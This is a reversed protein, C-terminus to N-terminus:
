FWLFFAVPLLFSTFPSPFGFVNLFSSLSKSSFSSSSSSSISVVSSSISVVSSSISAFSSSTSCTSWGTSITWSSCSFYHQRSLQDSSWLFENWLFPREFLSSIYECCGCSIHFNVGLFTGNWNFRNSIGGSVQQQLYQLLVPWLDLLIRLAQRSLRSWLCLRAHSLSNLPHLWERKLHWPRMHWLGTM